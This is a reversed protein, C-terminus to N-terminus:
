VRVGIGVNPIIYLGIVVILIIKITVILGVVM